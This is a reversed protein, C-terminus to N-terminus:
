AGYTVEGNCAAGWGTTSADKTYLWGYQVAPCAATIRGVLQAFEKSSCSRLKRLEKISQIIQRRKVEPLELTNKISDLIFGLFQCRTNPALCSKEENIVFGLSELTQKTVEINEACEEKTKGFCLWDDLYVVSLLERERFVNKVPKMMKTYLWPAVSLGFPVCSWEYIQERWRQKGNSKPVLFFTFLFQGECPRVRRIAGKIMLTNITDQIYLEDRKNLLGERFKDQQTPTSAFLIKYGQIDGGSKNKLQLYLTRSHRQKNLKHKARIRQGAVEEKRTHDRRFPDEIAKDGTARRLKDRKKITDNVSAEIEPNLKPAQIPCNGKRLYKELIEVKKEKKLGELLIKEWALALMPHLTLRGEDKCGSDDGLIELTEQDLEAFNNEEASIREELAEPSIASEENEKDSISKSCWTDSEDTVVLLAFCDLNHAT